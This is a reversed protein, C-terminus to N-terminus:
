PLPDPTCGRSRCAEVDLGMLRQPEKAWCGEGGTDYTREYVREGPGANGFVPVTIRKGGHFKIRTRFLYYNRNAARSVYGDAPASFSLKYTLACGQAELEVSHMAHEHVRTGLLAKQNWALAVAPSALLLVLTLFRLPPRPM